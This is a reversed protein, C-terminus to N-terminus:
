ARRAGAIDVVAMVASILLLVAGLVSLLVGGLAPWGTVTINMTFTSGAVPHAASLGVSGNWYSTIWVIGIALFLVAGLIMKQRNM